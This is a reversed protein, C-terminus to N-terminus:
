SPVGTRRGFRNETGKLLRGINARHMGIVFAALLAFLWLIPRTAPHLWWAAPPLAAAALISGLSVYGTLRVVVIWLGLVLLTAWPAM